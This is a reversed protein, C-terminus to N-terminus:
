RFRWLVSVVSLMPVGVDCQGVWFGLALLETRCPDGRNLGSPVGRASSQCGHPSAVFHGAVLADRPRWSTLLSRAEM